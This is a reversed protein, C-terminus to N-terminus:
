PNASAAAKVDAASPYMSALTNRHQEGAVPSGAVHKGETVMKGVRYMLRVIEPHNGAGTLIFAERMKAAEAGGIAELGKAITELVAPHNAGGLEADAKVAAQWEGQTKMWLNVPGEVAEKVISNHLDFLKQGRESPSLNADALTEKLTALSKDDVASGDPVKIDIAAIAAAKADAALFEDHKAKLGADDLKAIEDPKLGKAALFASREEKTPEKAAPADGPKGEGPAPAAAGAAPKADGVLSTPAAGAGPEGGAAPPKGATGPAAASAPDPNSAAPAGPDNGEGAPAHKFHM